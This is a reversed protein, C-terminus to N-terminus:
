VRYKKAYFDYLNKYEAGVSGKSSPSYEGHPHFIQFHEEKAQIVYMAINYCHDSIRELDSIIELFSIGAQVNCKGASLREIHKEKLEFQLMDVIDELPEVRLADQISQHYYANGAFGLIENVASGMLRLEEFAEESFFIEHEKNYQATEAINTAHDSIREIDNVAHLINTVIHNEMDNLDLSSVKVIYDNLATQFRDVMDEDRQLIDFNEDNYDYILEMAKEVNKISLETMTHVTKKCQEVAMNPSSLLLDDLMDLQMEGQSAVDEKIFYGSIKILKSVFPVLLITTTINFFTHFDAINGRNMPSNWFVFGSGFMQYSYIAIFFIAMGCLNTFVDIFVARKANKKSGISALVVTICKGVNQGLIIPIATAYTIAGTSSLVQLIGVSASSSQLIATMATGFLIGLIPNKFVFFLNKFWEENKLPSLTTEMTNMGFFLMGLGLMIVGIDKTKRKSSFLNMASGIGILVPGFSSPKLLALFLNADGLDGLRLIQATVTTGINAGMIVPVAHSLKIIGANLLGIVMISTASSSQIVGTVATGLLVGKIRNSTLKELMRELKAGAVKELATGLISMGFLFLGIGAFLPLFSIINM